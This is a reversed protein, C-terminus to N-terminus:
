GSSSLRQLAKTDDRLKGISRRAAGSNGNRQAIRLESIDSAARQLVTDVRDFLAIMARDPPQVAQLATLVAQADNEADSIVTDRVAATLKGHRDLRGALQATGVIGTM